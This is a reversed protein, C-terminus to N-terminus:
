AAPETTTEAPSASTSAAAGETSSTTASSTSSAARATTTSGEGQGSTSTGDGPTATSGATSGAASSPTTSFANAGDGGLWKPCCRKCVADWLSVLKNSCYVGCAWDDRRMEVVSTPFQGVLCPVLFAANAAALLCVLPVLVAASASSGTAKLDM